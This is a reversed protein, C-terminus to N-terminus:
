GQYKKEIEKVKSYLWQLQEDPTMNGNDLVLADAAKKLPSVIRHSDMYDREEINKRIEDFSVVEGKAQLERFRRMARVEVAATMFIKLEANPFVVTGIDRGDMVVGKQRGIFQQQKVLFDRVEPIASIASVKSAVEVSRIEREVNVGNLYTDLTSGNRRFEISINKETLLAAIQRADSLSHQICYLTVARYMAGTDVYIYNLKHAIARAVTSKGTSSHGDIAIIIKNSKM